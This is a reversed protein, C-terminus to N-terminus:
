PGKVNSELVSIAMDILEESSSGVLNSVFLEESLFVGIHHSCEIWHILVGVISFHLSALVLLLWNIVHESGQSLLVLRVNQPVNYLADSPGFTSVLFILRVSWASFFGKLSVPLNLGTYISLSRSSELLKNWDNKSVSHTLVAM